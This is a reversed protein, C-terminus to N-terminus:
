FVTINVDIVLRVYMIVYCILYIYAPLTNEEVSIRKKFMWNQSEVM